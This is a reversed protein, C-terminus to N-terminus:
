LKKVLRYHLLISAKNTNSQENAQTNIQLMLHLFLRMPQLAVVSLKHYFYIFDVYTCVFHKEVHM